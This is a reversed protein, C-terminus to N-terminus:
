RRTKQVDSITTMKDVDDCLKAFDVDITKLWDIFPKRTLADNVLEIIKNIKVDPLLVNDVLVQEAATMPVIKGNAVKWFKQPIGAVGVLPDKDDCVIKDAVGDYNPTSTSWMIEIVANAVPTSRPDYLIVNAM